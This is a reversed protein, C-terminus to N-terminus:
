FVYTYSGKTIKKIFFIYIGARLNGAWQTDWGTDRSEWRDRIIDYLIPLYTQM